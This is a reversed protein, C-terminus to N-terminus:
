NITAYNRIVISEMWIFTLIIIFYNFNVFFPIVRVIINEM